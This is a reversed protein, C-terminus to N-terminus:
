PIRIQLPKRQKANWQILDRYSKKAKDVIAKSVDGHSVTPKNTKLLSPTGVADKASSVLGELFNSVESLIPGYRETVTADANLKRIQALQLKTNLASTASKGLVEQAPIGAGGPSSAGKNASLIPNLGAARLDAVERQHATSSMREQFAMQKASIARNSKNQLLGGVFNAGGVALAATGPDIM